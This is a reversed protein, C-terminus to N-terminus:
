CNRQSPDAHTRADDKIWASLVTLQQAERPPLGLGTQAHYAGIADGQCAECLRLYHQLGTDSTIGGQEAAVLCPQYCQWWALRADRSLLARAELELALFQESQQKGLAEEEAPTLRYTQWQHDPVPLPNHLIVWHGDGTDRSWPPEYFWLIRTLAACWSATQQAAQVRLLDHIVRPDYYRFFGLRQQGFGIFLRNQCFAILREKSLPTTILIQRRVIGQALEAEIQAILATSDTVELIWPGVDAIADYETGQLLQQARVDPQQAYLAQLYDQDADFILYASEQTSQEWHLSPQETLTLPLTLTM